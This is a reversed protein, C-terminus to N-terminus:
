VRRESRVDRDTDMIVQSTEMDLVINL